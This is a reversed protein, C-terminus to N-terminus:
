KGSFAARFCPADYTTSFSKSSFIRKSQDTEQDKINDKSYMKGYPRRLNTENLNSVPQAISLYYPLDNRVVDTSKKRYLQWEICGGKM